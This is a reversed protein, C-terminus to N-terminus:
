HPHESRTKQNKKEYFIEVLPVLFCHWGCGLISNLARKLVNADMSAAMSLPAYVRFGVM